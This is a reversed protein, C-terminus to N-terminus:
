LFLFTSSSKAKLLHTFNNFHYENLAESCSYAIQLIISYNIGLFLSYIQTSKKLVPINTISRRFKCTQFFFIISLKAHNLQSLRVINGSGTTLNWTKDKDSFHKIHHHYPINQIFPLSQTFWGTHQSLLFFFLIFRRSNTDRYTQVDKWCMIDPIQKTHPNREM